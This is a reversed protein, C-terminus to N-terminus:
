RDFRSWCAADIGHEDIVDRLRFRSGERERVEVLVELVDDSREGGLAEVLAPVVAAPVTWGYEYEPSGFFEEVARGIDQGYVVLDGDDDLRASLHRSGGGDETERM